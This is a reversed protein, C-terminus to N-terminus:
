GKYEASGTRRKFQEPVPTGSTMAAMVADYVEGGYSAGAYAVYWVARNEKVSFRNLGQLDRQVTSFASGVEEAKLYYLLMVFGHVMVGTRKDKAKITFGVARFPTGPQIGQKWTPIDAGAQAIAIMPEDFNTTDRVEAGEIRTLSARAKKIADDVAKEFEAKDLVEEKEQKLKASRDEKLTTVIFYMTVVMGIGLVVLLIGNILAKPNGRKGYAVDASVTVPEDDPAPGVPGGRAAGPNVKVVQKRAGLGPGTLKGFTKCRTCTPQKAIIDPAAAFTHGCAQCTYNATAPQM